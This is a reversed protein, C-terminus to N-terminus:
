ADAGGELLMGEREDSLYELDELSPEEAGVPGVCDIVSFPVACSKKQAERRAQDEVECQVCLAAPEWEDMEGGCSECQKGVLRVELEGTAFLDEKDSIGHSYTDSGVASERTTAPREADSVLQLYAARRKSVFDAYGIVEIVNPKKFGPQPIRRIYGDDEFRKLMAQVTSRPTKWREELFRVSARVQGVVLGKYDKWRAAHILDELAFALSVGRGKAQKDNRPHYPHDPNRLSRPMVIFGEAWDIM